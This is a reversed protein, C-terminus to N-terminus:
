DIWLKSMRQEGHLCSDSNLASGINCTGASAMPCQRSVEERASCFSNTKSSIVTGSFNLMLGMSVFAVLLLFLNFFFKGRAIKIKPEYSIDALRNIREALVSDFFSIALNNKSVIQEQWRIIKLLAQALPSKDVFGRTAMEDAAMESFVKYQQALTKLGPVFFLIKTTIKIFFLKSPDRSLLHCKEHELVARLEASSLREVLTNAIYIKPRWYGYCFIIPKAENIEVVRGQLGLSKALYALPPSLQLREERCNVQLFRATNKKVRITKILFYILLAFLGLGLFILFSLLWPHQWFSFRVACGCRYKLGSFFDQWILFIQPYVLRGFFILAGFFTTALVLFKYFILRTKNQFYHVSM